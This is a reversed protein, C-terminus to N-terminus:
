NPHFLFQEADVVWILLKWLKLFLTSLQEEEENGMQKELKHGKNSTGSNLSFCAATKNGAQLLIVM